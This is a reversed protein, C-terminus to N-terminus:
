SLWREKNSRFSISLQNRIRTVRIALFMSHAEIYNEAIETMEALKLRKGKEKLYIKLDQSQSEYYRDMVINELVGDFSRTYEAKDLWELYYKRLRAAYDKQSENETCKAQLFKKRSTRITVGFRRKVANVVEDFDLRAEGSLTEYALLSDGTLSKALEIAWLRKPLKYAEAVTTFKILFPDLDKDINSFLGIGLDYRRFSNGDGSTGNRDEVVRSRTDIEHLRLHSDSEAALRQQELRSKEINQDHELKSRQLELQDVRNREDAEQKQKLLEFEAEQKQKQLESEAEQKKKLLEFEAEQKQLERAEIREKRELEIQEKALRISDEMSTGMSVFEDVLVKLRTSM